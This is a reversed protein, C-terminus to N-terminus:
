TLKRGCMPCYNIIFESTLRRRGAKEIFFGEEAIDSKVKVDNDTYMTVSLARDHSYLALAMFNEGNEGNPVPKVRDRERSCFKCENAM